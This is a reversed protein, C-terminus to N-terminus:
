LILRVLFLIMNILQILAWYFVISYVFTFVFYRINESFVFHRENFEETRTSWFVRFMLYIVFFGLTGRVVVEYRYVASAVQVGLLSIGILLAFFSLKAFSIGNKMARIGELDLISNELTKRM